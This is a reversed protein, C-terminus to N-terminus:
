SEAQQKKAVKDYLHSPLSDYHDHTATFRGRGGTLSRLDIAYGFITSRFRDTHNSFCRSRCIVQRKLDM